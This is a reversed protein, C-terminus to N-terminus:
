KSCTRVRSELSQYFTLFLIELWSGLSKKSPYAVKAWGANVKNLMLDAALQEMNETINLAGSIGLELELLSKRITSLLLNMREAEQLSVIVYPLRCDGSAIYQKYVDSMEITMLDFDEPLKELLATISEQAAGIDGASGSSGGGSLQQLTSFIVSAQTTLYGVEANAHMGFLNPNDAPFKSSIFKTYDDKNTFVPCILKSAGGAM